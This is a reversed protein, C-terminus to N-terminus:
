NRQATENYVIENAEEFSIEKYRFQMIVEVNALGHLGNEALYKNGFSAAEEFKDFAKNFTVNSLASKSSNPAIFPIYCRTLKFVRGAHSQISPDQKCDVFNAMKKAKNVEKMLTLENQTVSKALSNIEKNFYYFCAVLVLVIIFTQM